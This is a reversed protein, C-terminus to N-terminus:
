SDECYNPVSLTYLLLAKKPHLNVSLSDSLSLKILDIGSEASDFLAPSNLTSFWSPWESDLKHAPENLAENSGVPSFPGVDPWILNEIGKM